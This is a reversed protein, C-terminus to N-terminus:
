SIRKVMLYGDDGNTYYALRRGAISFGIGEYLARAADNTTRVELHLLHVDRELFVAELRRMLMRGVGHRRYEPSVGLVVVHGTRDVEVVGIVFGLMRGDVGVCKMCIADPYAILDHFTRREYTEGDAFCVQDLAWCEDLDEALIPYAALSVAAM